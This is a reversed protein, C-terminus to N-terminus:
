YVVVLTGGSHIVRMQEEKSSAIRRGLYGM